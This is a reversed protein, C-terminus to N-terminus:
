NEKADREERERKRGERAARRIEDMVWSRGIASETDHTELEIVELVTGEDTQITIKM